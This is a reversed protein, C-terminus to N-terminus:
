WSGEEGENSWIEWPAWRWRPLTPWGIFSHSASVSTLLDVPHHHPHYMELISLYCDFFVNAGNYLTCYTHAVSFVMLIFWKFNQETFAADSDNRTQYSTYSKDSISTNLSFVDGAKDCFPTHHHFPTYHTWSQDWSHGWGGLGGDGATM